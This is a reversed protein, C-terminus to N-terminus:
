PPLVGLGGFHTMIAPNKEVKAVEAVITAMHSPKPWHFILPFRSSFDRLKGLLFLPCVYQCGDGKFTQFFYGPYQFPFILLISYPVNTRVLNLLQVLALLWWDQIKRQPIPFIFFIRHVQAITYLSKSKSASRVSLSLISYFASPKFSFVSCNSLM